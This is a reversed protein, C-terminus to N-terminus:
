SRYHDRRRTGHCVPPWHTACPAGGARGLKGHVPVMDILAEGARLQLLGIDVQEREVTCGLVETYFRKMAEVNVVRLVLHDLRQLTFM